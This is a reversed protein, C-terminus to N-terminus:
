KSFPPYNPTGYGTITRHQLPYSRQAVRDATNGEITYVYTKDSGTVIGTHSAGNSLFFIIDGKKPQYNEKYQFQKRQEFWERGVTCAAYKPIIATSIGAENACWSVFMACWEGNPIGWWDGYKTDNNYGEVYGEENLAVEVLRSAYDVNPKGFVTVKITGYIDNSLPSFAAIEAVGPAVGFVKGGSAAMAVQNDYSKWFYYDLNTAGDIALQISEGAPIFAEITPSSLIMRGAGIEGHADKISSTEGVKITLSAQIAPNSKLTAIISVKGHKLATIINNNLSIVDPNSLGWHFSDFSAGLTAENKMLIVTSMGLKLYNSPAYLVPSLVKGAEVIVKLSATITLGPVTVTLTTCGISQAKILGNEISAINDKSFAFHLEDFSINQLRLPLSRGENTKLIIEEQFFALSKEGEDGEVIVEISTSISLSPVTVTLSTTGINLAKISEDEIIAINDKSFAFQLKDFSINQLELPLSSRENIKLIIEPQSFTVSAAEETCGFFTFAFFLLIIFLYKKM